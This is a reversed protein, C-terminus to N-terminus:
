FVSSKAMVCFCIKIKKKKNSQTILFIPFHHIQQGRGPGTIKQANKRKRTRRKKKKKKNPVDYFISVIVNFQLYHQINSFIAKKTFHSYFNYSKNGKKLVSQTTGTYTHTIVKDSKAM